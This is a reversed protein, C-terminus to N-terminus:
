WGYDDEYHALWQPMDEKVSLLLFRYDSEDTQGSQVMFKYFKKLSAVNEKVAAPSSWIAKRPFFWDFFWGVAVAGGAASNLDDYLLFHNIYFDTNELHKRITKEKLGGQELWRGFAALLSKNDARISDAAAEQDELARIAGPKTECM